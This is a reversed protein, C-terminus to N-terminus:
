DDYLEVMGPTIDGGWDPLFLGRRVDRHFSSYPWDIVRQVYGHKIPNYYTYFM